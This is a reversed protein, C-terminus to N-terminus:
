AHQSCTPSTPPCVTRGIHEGALDVLGVLIDTASLYFYYLRLLSKVESVPWIYINFLIFLLYTFVFYLGPPFIDKFSVHGGHTDACDLRYVSRRPPLLDGAVSAVGHPLSFGLFFFIFYFLLFISVLINFLTISMCSFSLHLMAGMIFTEDLDRSNYEGNTTENYHV